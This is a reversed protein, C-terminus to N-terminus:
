AVMRTTFQFVSNIKPRLPTPMTSPSAQVAILQAPVDLSSQILKDGAQTLDGPQLLAIELHMNDVCNLLILPLSLLVKRVDKSQRAVSFIEM